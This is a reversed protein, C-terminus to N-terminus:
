KLETLEARIVDNLVAVAALKEDKTHQASTLMAQTARFAAIADASIPVKARLASFRETLLTPSLDVGLTALFDTYDAYHEKYIMAKWDHREKRRERRATMVHTAFAGVLVGCLSTVAAIVGVLVAPNDPVAPETAVAVFLSSPTSSGALSYEVLVYSGRASPIGDFPIVVTSQPPIVVAPRPAPIAAHPGSLLARSVHVPRDGANELQVVVSHSSGAPFAAAKVVLPVASLAAGPLFLAGLLTLSVMLLAGRVLSM